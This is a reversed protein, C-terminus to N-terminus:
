KCVCSLLEEVTKTLCNLLEKLQQSSMQELSINRPLSIVKDDGFAEQLLKHHKYVEDYPLEGYNYRAVIVEEDSPKYREIDIGPYYDCIGGASRQDGNQVM